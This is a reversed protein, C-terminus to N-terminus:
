FVSKLWSSSSDRVIPPIRNHAHFGYGFILEAPHFAGFAQNKLAAAAAKVFPHVADVIHEGLVANQQLCLTELSSLKQAHPIM